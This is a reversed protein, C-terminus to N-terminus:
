KCQMENLNHPASQLYAFNSHPTLFQHKCSFTFDESFFFYGTGSQRGYIGVTSVLSLCHNEITVPLYTILRRFYLQMLILVIKNM